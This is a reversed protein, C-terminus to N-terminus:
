AARQLDAAARMIRRALAANVLDLRRPQDGRLKAAQAAAVCSLDAASGDHDIRERVVKAASIQLFSCEELTLGTLDTPATAVVQQARHLGLAPGDFIYPKGAVMRVGPEAGTLGTPAFRFPKAQTTLSM